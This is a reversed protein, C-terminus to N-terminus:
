NLFNDEIIVDLRDENLKATVSAPLVRPRRRLAKLAHFRPEAWENRRM